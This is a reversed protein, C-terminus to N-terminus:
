TRSGEQYAKTAEDKAEGSKRSIVYALVTLGVGFGVWVPWPLSIIFDKVSSIWQVNESIYNGVATTATTFGAVISGWFGLREATKAAQVEPLKPALEDATAESREPAIPRVWAEDKAKQLEAKLAADIVPLGVLHRDNKFATIAGATRGGWRGDIEGVEHYGLEKLRTQVVQIEVSEDFHPAGAVPAAGSYTPPCKYHALWQAFTRKPEGSSCFEFHMPDKRGSYDGGWRAGESKFAAIMPLPINGAVNFGNEEANIDIAAGYAHNSWKSSSGRILRHNYTGATKSIGLSDIVAQNKGYYEWVKNLAALLAPAAKKHFSLRSLLKGDYYMKFPPTITIIQPAVAGAGPDGYFEILAAQNDKPWTAMISESWTTEDSNDSSADSLGREFLAAETDRRKRLGALNPWLRKMARFEAPIRDFAEAKMHAKINRMEQYRPGAMGFSPGRNFTLSLLAGFSDGSLKDTNPLAAIVRAEWRPVVREKHVAIAVDWPIDVASRIRATAARGAAGTAGSASVMAALMTESVRGRWDAIITKKDTQGLDYGIGVTAGSSAGPWEPRRYKREYTARSTVEEAIILDFAAQSARM